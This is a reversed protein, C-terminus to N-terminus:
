ADGNCTQALPNLEKIYRVWERRRWQELRVRVSQEVGVGDPPLPTQEAHTVAPVQVDEICSIEVVHTVKPLEVDAPLHCVHHDAVAEAVCVRVQLHLPDVRRVQTVYVLDPGEVVVDVVVHHKAVVVENHTGRVVADDEEVVRVEHEHLVDVGRAEDHICPTHTLLAVQEEDCVGCFLLEGNEVDCGDGRRLQQRM